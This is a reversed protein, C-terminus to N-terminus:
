RKESVKQLYDKAKPTALLRLREFAERKLEADSETDAIHILEVDARAAFLAVIIPRKIQVTASQYLM